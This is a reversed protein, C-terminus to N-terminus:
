DSFFSWIAAVLAYGVLTYAGDIIAMHIPYNGYIWGYATTTLGFTVAAILGYKVSAGLTSINLKKLLLGLGVSVVAVNLLGLSLQVPQAFNFRTSETYGMLVTMQDLFVIGFWLFGLFFFVISTVLLGIINLGFLKPM